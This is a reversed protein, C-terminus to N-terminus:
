GAQEARQGPALRGRLAFFAALAGAAHLAWLAALTQPTGLTDGALWVIGGLAGLWLAAALIGVFVCGALLLAAGIGVRTAGRQIDIFALEIRQEVVERASRAVDDLLEAIPPERFTERYRLEHRM